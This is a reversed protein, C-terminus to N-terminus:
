EDVDGGHVLDTETTTGKYSFLKRLCVYDRM